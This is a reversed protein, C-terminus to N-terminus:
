CRRDLAAAADATDQPPVVTALYRRAACHDPAIEIARRLLREGEKADGGLVRPLEILFAGKATLVDPDDPALELATDIERRLRRVALVSRLGIGELQTRRGLACFVAFHAAADHPDGALAREALSLGQELLAQQEGGTAADARRCAALAERAVASGVPEAEGWGSLLGLWLLGLTARAIPGIRHAGPSEGRAM